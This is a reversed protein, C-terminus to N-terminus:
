IRSKLWVYIQSVKDQYVTYVFVLFNNQPSFTVQMMNADTVGSKGGLM